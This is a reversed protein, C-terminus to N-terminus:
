HPSVAREAVWQIFHGNECQLRAYHPPIASCLHFHSSSCTRCQSTKGPAKSNSFAISAPVSCSFTLTTAHDLINALVPQLKPQNRSMFKFWLAYIKSYSPHEFHINVHLPDFARINPRLDLNCFTQMQQFLARSAISIDANQRLLTLITQDDLEFDQDDWDEIAEGLESELEERLEQFQRDAWRSFYGLKKATYELAGQDLNETEKLEEIVRYGVWGKLHDYRQQKVILDDIWPYPSNSQAEPALVKTGNQGNFCDAFQETAAIADDRLQPTIEIMEPTTDHTVVRGQNLLVEGTSGDVQAPRKTHKVTGKLSWEREDDPLGHTWWNKTHDLIIAHDKLRDCVAAGIATKGAGTAIQVLTRYNQSFFGFVDSVADAQYNRLAFFTFSKSSPAM